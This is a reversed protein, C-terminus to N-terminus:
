MGWSLFQSKRQEKKSLTKRPQKLAAKNQNLTTVTTTESSKTSSTKAKRRTVLTKSELDKKRKDEENKKSVESAVRKREIEEFNIGPSSKKELSSGDGNEQLINKRKIAITNTKPIERSISAVSTKKLSITKVKKTQQNKLFDLLIKKDSDNVEDTISSQTLGAENMQSLLVDSPTGVINAIKEVTLIAM